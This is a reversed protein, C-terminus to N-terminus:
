PVKWCAILYGGISETQRTWEEEKQHGDQRCGWSTEENDTPVIRSLRNVFMLSWWTSWTFCNVFLNSGHLVSDWLKCVLPCLMTNHIWHRGIACVVKFTIGNSTQNSQTVICQRVNHCDIQAVVVRVPVQPPEENQLNDDISSFMRTTEVRNILFSPPIIPPVIIAWLDSSSRVRLQLFYQSNLIAPASKEWYGLSLM